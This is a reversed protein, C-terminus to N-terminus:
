RVLIYDNPNIEGALDRISKKAFMKQLHDRAIKFDNHIPCPFKDSCADLGLGCAKFFELTDIAEIIKIAPLQLNKETLYFGGNPGKTSSIIKKPVLEQLIKGLFPSPIKLSDSLEKLSKKEDKKCEVALYLITRIAYKCKQSLM